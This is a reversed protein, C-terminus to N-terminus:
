VALRKMNWETRWIEEGTELRIKYYWFRGGSGSIGADVVEGKKGACPDPYLATPSTVIMVKEGISYRQRPKPAVVYYPKTVPIRPAKEKVEPPLYGKMIRILNPLLIEEYKDGVKRFFKDYSKCYYFTHKPMRLLADAAIDRYGL